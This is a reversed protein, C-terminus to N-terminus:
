EIVIFDNDTSLFDYKGSSPLVAKIQNNEIIIDFLDPMNEELKDGELIGEVVVKKSSPDGLDNAGWKLFDGVKYEHQWVDGYKFQVQINYIRQFEPDKWILKVTNFASM